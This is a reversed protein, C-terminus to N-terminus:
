QQIPFPERRALGIVRDAARSRGTAPWIISVGVDIAERLPVRRIDRPRNREFSSVVLDVTKDSAIDFRLAAGSSSTDINRHSGGAQVWAETCADFFGPILDRPWIALRNGTVERLAVRRRRVFRSRTSV